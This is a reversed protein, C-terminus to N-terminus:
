LNLMGLGLPFIRLLACLLKSFHSINTTFIIHIISLIRGLSVDGMASERTDARALTRTWQVQFINIKLESLESWLLFYSWKNDDKYYANLIALQVGSVTNNTFSTKQHRCLFKSVVVALPRFHNACSSFSSLPPRSYVDRLATITKINPVPTRMFRIIIPSVFKERRLVM